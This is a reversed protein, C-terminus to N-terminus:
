GRSRHIAHRNGPLIFNEVTKGGQILEILFPM